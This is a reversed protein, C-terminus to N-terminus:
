IKFTDTAADYTITGGNIKFTGTFNKTGAVSQNGTIKVNQGDATQLSSINTTNATIQSQINSTVGDLYNLETSTINSVGVKGSSNSVLVRNAVLNSSTITSAAGTITSQKNNIQTQPDSDFSISDQRIDNVFVNTGGSGTSASITVDNGSTSLTINSGAKINNAELKKDLSVSINAISTTNTAILGLLNNDSDGRIEAEHDINDQLTNDANERATIETSVDSQLALNNGNYTPRTANGRMTLATNPMGIWALTGNTGVLTSGNKKNIYIGSDFNICSGDVENFNVEGTFKGGSKDMKSNSLSNINDQMNSVSNKLGDWGYVSGTGDTEAYVKGDASSGKIIGAISNTFINVTDVGVDQWTTTNTYYRWIHNSGSVVVGIQPWQSTDIYGQAKVFAEIQSATPNTSATYLLRINQGELQEIRSTNERIQSYDAKSMLGATTDNALPINISSNSTALTSLNIYSRNLSVNDNQATIGLNTMVNRNINSVIESVDTNITNIIDAFQKPTIAKTTNTGTSVESDTAIQIIGSVTTSAQPINLLDAFSGTKSIKHLNITGDITEGSSVSLTSSNSTNLMPKGTLNGYSGDGAGINTRAQTKQAASLSQSKSYYVVGNELDGVQDQLTKIANSNSTINSNATTIQTELQSIDSDLMAVTDDITNIETKLIRGQNASLANNADTSTLNDIVNPITKAAGYSSIHGQGDIAIPYVAQTTNAIVSNTHAVTIIGSSTIPGGSASIGAIGEIDISSVTGTGGGGSSKLTGDAVGIIIADSMNNNPVIVVVNEGIKIEGVNRLATIGTYERRDIELTFVGANSSVVRGFKTKNYPSNKFVENSVLDIRSNIASVIEKASNRDLTKSM